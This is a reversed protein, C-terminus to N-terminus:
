LSQKNHKKIKKTFGFYKAKKIYFWRTKFKLILQNVLGAPLIQPALAHLNRCIDLPSTGGQLSAM